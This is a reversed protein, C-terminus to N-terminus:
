QYPGSEVDCSVKLFSGSTLDPYLILSSYESHNSINLFIQFPESVGKGKTYYM